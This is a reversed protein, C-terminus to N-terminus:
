DIQRLSEAAQPHMAAGIGFVLKWTKLFNRIKITEVPNLIFVTIQRQQLMKGTFATRNM